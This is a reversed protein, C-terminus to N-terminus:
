MMADLAYAVLANTRIRLAFVNPWACIDSVWGNAAEPVLRSSCRVPGGHRPALRLVDATMGRRCTRTHSCLECVRRSVVLLRPALAQADALLVALLRAGMAQACRAM